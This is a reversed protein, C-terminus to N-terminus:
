FFNARKPYSKARRKFARNDLIKKVWLYLYFLGLLYVFTRWPNETLHVGIKGFQM